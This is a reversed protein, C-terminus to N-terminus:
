ECFEKKYLVCGDRWEEDYVGTCRQTGCSECNDQWFKHLRDLYEQEFLKDAEKMKSAYSPDIMGHEEMYKFDM